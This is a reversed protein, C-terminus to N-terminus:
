TKVNDINSYIDYIMQSFGSYMKLATLTHVPPLVLSKQDSSKLRPPQKPRQVPDYLSTPKDRMNTVHKALMVRVLHLIEVRKIHFRLFIVPIVANNYRLRAFHYFAEQILGFKEPIVVRGRYVVLASPVFGVWQSWKLLM